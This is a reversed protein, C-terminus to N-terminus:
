NKLLYPCLANAMDEVTIIDEPLELGGQKLNERLEVMAPVDLALERLAQTQSFVSAPTGDMAIRGESLVIVRNALAAEEMFHTIMIVTIGEKNLRCVTDLVERRGAPDLMATAEDLVLMQPKMALLGAIAIRQKQGGSLMHPASQAYERMGVTDLADNVRARIELPPIGLNEPGFAVDEEVITTVLQNDPNQFLLAAFQRIKLTNEPDKTSMGNVFVEGDSPLYLANLHKALTSKGSGNHGVIAVFDGREVEFSVGRLAEYGGPYSFKVDCVKIM